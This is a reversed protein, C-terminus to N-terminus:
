RVHAGSYRTSRPSVNGLTIRVDHRGSNPVLRLRGREVASGDLDLSQVGRSVGDRNVVEIHYEAGAIKLTIRFAPWSSPVCPDITLWEGERKFGLIHELTIRYMWAAAGTYWSWGGRGEHGEASYVDAVVAYPEVRYRKVRDRDAARHIPSVFTLLEHARDGRGLLAYALVVWLAAHTYQGGNERVGPVYGRIYGPNPEAKDFPPTLLLILGNARDVLLEEVSQMARAAREPSGLGSIVSWSQAIADIRCETNASSGLPTGDDFYARRYWEGDWANELADQLRSVHARYLAAQQLDGRREALSAFPTLLSGLFWGLWVSEGRGDAGVEDMGDNWDGTGIFPLGHVGVGLTRAIARVCHDYISIEMPLRVPREYVSHEDPGPARQDILPATLDFITWDGTVRAYELAAYVLWLRDDQIRTRVGEGGPEHWWHQVDGEPFQRGAARVIHQRALEPDVHLLSLVDQLQDRFGFAGGSQYFASRAHVRCSLTQYLLWHNMLLDLAPDPTSVEVTALREEWRRRVHEFEAEVAGGTRYKAVLQRVMAEDHGEGLMFTVEVSGRPAISFSAHMAGCPDLLPGVRGPLHTFELALPDALTGNRGIFSTRDGTVTRTRESTDVFAIRGGFDARFPNRATLAGCVTDISTVIDTASRSRLDSLCWEVYYFASLERRTESVNDIRLRLLKVPDDAAVFGVLEVKLDLHTHEYAVWGQGFKTTFQISRGVPSPTATWFQGARDDRLFVAEGPPDVVPDNNWPTLRNQHSNESWTTGLGSETAIFGFRPNSVVNCWPMPPRAKIHYERGDNTFGGFGNFFALNEEAPAPIPAMDFSPRLAVRSPPILPLLPRRLQVELGGRSGEFVARAIARLMVRDGEAMADSRRLFLGGPRDLWMHSPGADAIRQLDDQVDQRYGTSIENLVVLDFRFGKARLYEQGWVLEQFLAVQAGDSITVLVIPLDGSIGHKWLDPPTGTNRSVDEASRLRPDGYIVRAALRQFRGAEERSVTLHRLEIDSHTKALAFARASVQPDHYKEVLARVRDETEAVVTTFSVRATVGSPVRLRVRLSAIPDLVAGAAGSLPTATLLAAPNRPSGGRGIFHERDTEFEITDDLTRGALVHGMFFRQEHARPRRAFIVARTEPIAASEVFLNSFAPHAMDAAQPALVVELYSTLEIERITPSHNTVSVRRIEADDEPSVTVETIAEIGEDRRRFVARDPAFTVEYNDTERGSPQFGSSWFQGTELDRIYCFTGWGDCTSDERWRTIALERWRTYGGGANTVMVSLSGNSLLHGRPTVTHPTVYRRVLTPVVRGPAEEIKHEDPPRDLPVLHPSREQLLLEAAQVRPESHFRAQMINGNVANNLAVLSMGQHHAMYTKVVARRQGAELRDKTYDVAEYFGMPGLAGESALDELNQLVEKPRMSAALVSAYPAVVLDDALGRKLGIGPVGFARYQYNAGTDQVNYASESIGWPVGFGKAYEIHRAVVAEYTENLLTRPYTRMVLLPMLYEFMSASWSVLARHQGVATMLRGLKFWHEQSVHRLAIAIFSALRAESALSDYYTSDRRGETVNYGIAFLHRETDFLFNLETSTLFEDAVRNIHEVQQHRLADIEGPAKAAGELERRREIAM